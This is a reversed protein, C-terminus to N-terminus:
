RTPCGVTVEGGAITLSLEGRLGQYVADGLLPDRWGLRTAMEERSSVTELVLREALLRPMVLGAGFAEREALAEGLLQLWATTRWEPTRKRVLRPIAWAPRQSARVIREVLEPADKALSRPLRRNALLSETTLPQRRALDVLAGDSLVARTPQNTARARELRWAALEQLVLLVAPQLAAAAAIERFSDSDDPTRDAHDRAEQCAALALELRGRSALEAELRDWLLLLLDVDLAAYALQAPTLPRRSWDSLTEAKDLTQGLWSQVLAAYPAPWHSSVLGAAIQTDLVVSPLGGLADHLVRLDQEGAHVVWPVARLAEGIQSLVHHQRPDVIWTSPEGPPGPDIRLQVLFLEPLFRREAHFETDVGVRRASQLSQVVTRVDGPGALRVSSGTV